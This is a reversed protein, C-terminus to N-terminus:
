KKDEIFENYLLEWDDSLYDKEGLWKFVDKITFGNVSKTMTEKYEQSSGLFEHGCQCPTSWCESCDSLAM